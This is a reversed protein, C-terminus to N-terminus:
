HVPTCQLGTKSLASCYMKPYLRYYDIISAHTSHPLTCTHYHLHTTNHYTPLTKTHYPPLTTTSYHPPTTPHYHPLITTNYHPPTALILALGCVTVEYQAPCLVIPHVCNVSYLPKYVPAMQLICHICYHTAQKPSQVIHKSYWSSDGLMSLFIGQLLCNQSRIKTKTGYLLFCSSIRPIEM